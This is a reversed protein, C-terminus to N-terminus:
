PTGKLEHARVNLPADKPGKWYSAIIQARRQSHNPGCAVRRWHSRVRVLVNLPTGKKSGHEVYDRVQPRCDVSVPRGLIFTKPQPIKSLSFKVGRGKSARQEHFNEPDSMALCTSIILRGVLLLVREDQEEVEMGLIEALPYDTQLLKKDVDLLQETSMGHRWLATGFESAALFNWKWGLSTDVHHVIIRKIPSVGGDGTSTFLLTTPLDIAFAPWPPVVSGEEIDKASTSMLLAAYKEDTRVIPLGEKYWRGAWMMTMQENPTSLIADMFTARTENGKARHEDADDCMRQFAEEDSCDGVFFNTGSWHAFQRIDADNHFFKAGEGIM